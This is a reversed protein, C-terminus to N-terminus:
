LADIWYFKERNKMSFRLLGTPIIRKRLFQEAQAPTQNIENAIYEINVAKESLLNIVKNIDSKM